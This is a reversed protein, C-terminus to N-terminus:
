TSRRKKWRQVVQALNCKIEMKQIVHQGKIEVSIQYLIHM